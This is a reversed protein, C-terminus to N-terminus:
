RYPHADAMRRCVVNSSSNSGWRRIRLVESNSSVSQKVVDQVIGNSARKVTMFTGSELGFLYRVPTGAENTDIVLGTFFNGTQRLDMTLDTQLAFETTPPLSRTILPHTATPFAVPRAADNLVQVVLLGRKDQTSYWSSNGANDRERVNQLLWHAELRPDNMASFDPASYALV